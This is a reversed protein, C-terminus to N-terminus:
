KQKSLDQKMQGVIEHALDKPSKYSTHFLYSTSTEKSTSWIMKETRPDILFANGRSAKFSRVFRPPDEMLAKLDIQPVDSFIADALHPDITVEYQGWRVLEATLYHDMRDKMPMLYIVKVSDLHVPSVEEAVALSAASLIVLSGIFFIPFHHKM